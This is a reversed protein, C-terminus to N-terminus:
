EKKVLDMNCKPCVGAKDSTVEPHMPCTYVVAATEETKTENTESKNNSDNCGTIGLWAVFLLSKAIKKMTPIILHDTAFHQLEGNSICCFVHGSFFENFRQIDGWHFRKIFKNVLSM